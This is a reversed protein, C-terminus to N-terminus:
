VQTKEDTFKYIKAIEFKNYYDFSNDDFYKKSCYLILFISDRIYKDIKGFGSLCFEIMSVNEYNLNLDKRFKDDIFSDNHAVINRVAKIEKYTEFEDFSSLQQIVDKSSVNCEDLLLEIFSDLQICISLVLNQVGFLYDCANNSIKSITENNFFNEIESENEEILRKVKANNVSFLLLDNDNKINHFLQNELSAEVPKNFEEVLQKSVPDEYLKASNNIFEKNFRDYRKHIDYFGVFIKNLIFEYGDKM